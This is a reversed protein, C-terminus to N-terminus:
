VGAGKGGGEEEEVEEGRKEEGRKEEGEREKLFALFDEGEGGGEEKGEEGEGGGGEEKENM